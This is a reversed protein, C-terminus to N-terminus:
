PGTVLVNGASHAAAGARHAPFELAVACIPLTVASGAGPAAAGAVMTCASEGDALAASAGAQHAPHPGLRGGADLTGNYTRKFRYLGPHLGNGCVVTTLKGAPLLQLPRQAARRIGTVWAARLLACNHLVGIPQDALIDGLAAIGRAQTGRCELMDLECQIV